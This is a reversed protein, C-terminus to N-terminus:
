RERSGAQPCICGMAENQAVLSHRMSHRCLMFWFCVGLKYDGCCVFIPAKRGAAGPPGPSFFGMKRQSPITCWRPAGQARDSRGVVSGRLDRRPTVHGRAKDQKPTGPDPPRINPGSASAEAAKQQQHQDPVCRLGVARYSGLCEM